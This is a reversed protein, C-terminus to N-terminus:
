RALRVGLPRLLVIRARNPGVRRVVVSISLMMDVIAKSMDEIVISPSLPSIPFRDVLRLDPACKGVGMSDDSNPTM